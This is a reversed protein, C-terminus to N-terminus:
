SVGRVLPLYIQRQPPDLAAISARPLGGIDTFEGGIYVGASDLTLAFVTSNAGPNWPMAEGSATSLAAVGSRPQGGINQFGGGAVVTRGQAAVDYVIDDANPEM